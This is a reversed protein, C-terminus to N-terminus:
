EARAVRALTMVSVRSAGAEKLVETCASLTAGTTLVDDVLLIDKDTITPVKGRTVEIADKLLTHREERRKGRLLPTAFRRRLVLPDHDLSVLRALHGALVASQNYRRRLLRSWHLPVPVVLMKDHFMNQGAAAMWGALAAAMDLRDSHKFAMVVQRGVGEYAVATSGADWPPPRRHCGDCLLFRSSGESVTQVSVGCSQCRQGSYFHVRGFCSGCLGMPSATEEPCALCRAPYVTSLIGSGVRELLSKREAVM